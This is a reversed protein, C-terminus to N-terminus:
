PTEDPIRIRFHAGPGANLLRVTGGHAEVLERVISLGIGHGPASTSPQSSGRYFPEFIRAVEAEPVGPGSDQCDIAVAQGDHSVRLYIESDEPSFRIANSLLNGVAMAIKETDIIVVVPEGEVHVVLKRAQWQLRQEDAVRQVVALADTRDRTLRRAQFAITQYRLLDEIRAQLTLVNEKLIGTIERQQPQLAGVIGEDLLAVGERLAALPTKLEHSVHHLVRTKEADAALLRKRLWELQNGLQRLDSPGHIVVADALRNEGLRNIAGAIHRLPRAFGVSWGIALAVTIGIVIGIQWTLLERQQDLEKSFTDNRSALWSKALAAIEDNNQHLGELQGYLYKQQTRVNKWSQALVSGAREGHTVWDDFVTADSSMSARVNQVASRADRWADMYRDRFTSDDLILFQRAGRDMALTREQLKQVEEGLTAAAQMQMRSQVGLRELTLLANVSSGGLLAVSLLFVGLSWWRFSSHPLLRM